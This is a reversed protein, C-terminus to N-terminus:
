AGDDVCVAGRHAADAVLAQRFTAHMSTVHGRTLTGYAGGTPLALNPPLCPRFVCDDVQNRSLRTGM